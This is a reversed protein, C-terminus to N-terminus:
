PGSEVVRFARAMREVESRPIGRARAVTRWGRVVSVVQDLIATAAAPDLRFWPAVERLLELDQANDSESINLRLGEGYPDPNMDYAPALTWGKAELLFGHNRLHDDTNSVCVYFAIRRWLQELDRETRAGYQQLVEVLELYSVGAGADDGERRQLMTMASAFHRRHGESSRDFRKSLFTHHPGALRRLAASPTDIGALGALEHLVSEWAGSDVQDRASPFKAIWLERRDDLVSAKPRAGGLSSGPAMLMRLWSGYSPDAVADDRELQLSAHELTALSTWPPAALEDNDDLFVGGKRFRLAGIRHGDHVGLLYDSEMLTRPRRGEKRALHAERRAMLVRGWRDPCSDLFLGFNIEEGSPYQPGAFLGLSPDLQARHPGRLWARDYEFAFVERGRVVTASLRGMLAPAEMGLWDAWVEIIRRQSM